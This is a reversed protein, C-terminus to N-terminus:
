VPKIMTEIFQIDNEDLNYKRYLKEDTWKETFDQLPVANYVKAYADQSIKNVAVLCRFFKTEMYAKVNKMEEESNFPGVMLYTGSCITGPKGETLKGIVKGPLKGDEATKAIYLKWKNINNENRTILSKDIYTFGKKEFYPVDDHRKKKESGYHNTNLGFPSRGSVIESFPAFDKQSAVKRYISILENYRILVDCGEEHLYRTEVSVEKNDEHSVFKCPGTYGKEYLFYSVGGKIDVGSFCDSSNQFDHIERIHDCHIMEDRFKDLGWGGSFWRSPTIAVLFRPELKIAQNVFLHYIPKAQAGNDDGATNLQYPSNMIIADFKMKFIDEPNVTHILEYAHTELTQGREDEGLEGEQSTGCYICKKDKGWTHLIRKYRVNGEANNFHAISYRGNPYQSCYISRRSLLSTLETIAIGYLQNHFIHNIREQLDPYIPELGIM